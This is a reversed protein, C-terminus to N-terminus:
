KKGKELASIRKDLADLTLEKKPAPKKKPKNLKKEVKKFYNFLLVLVLILILAMFGLQENTFNSLNM